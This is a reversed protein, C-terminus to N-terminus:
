RRVAGHLYLCDGSPTGGVSAIEHAMGCSPGPDRTTGFPSTTSRHLLHPLWRRSASRTPTARWPSATWRSTSRAAIVHGGGHDTHNSAIESRGPAHVLVRADADIARFEVRLARPRPRPRDPQSPPM